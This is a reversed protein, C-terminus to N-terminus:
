NAKSQLGHLGMCSHLVLCHDCVLDHIGCRQLKLHPFRRQQHVDVFWAATTAQYMEASIM